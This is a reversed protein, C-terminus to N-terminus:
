PTATSERDPAHIPSGDLLVGSVPLTLTAINGDSIIVPFKGIVAGADLAPADVWTQWFLDIRESDPEDTFGIVQDAGTPNPRIVSGFTNCHFPKPLALKVDYDGTRTNAIKISIIEEM